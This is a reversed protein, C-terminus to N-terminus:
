KFVIDDEFLAVEMGINAAVEIAVATMAVEVAWCGGGEDEWAPMEIKAALTM